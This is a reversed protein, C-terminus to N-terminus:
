KQQPEFGKSRLLEVFKKLDDDLKQSTLGTTRKLSYVKRLYIDFDFYIDENKLEKEIKKFIEKTMNIPIVQPIFDIKKPTERQVDCQVKYGNIEAEKIEETFYWKTKEHTLVTKFGLRDLKDFPDTQFARNRNRAKNFWILCTFGLILVPLGISAMILITVVILWELSENGNIIATLISILAISTFITSTFLFAFRLKGNNLELFKAIM